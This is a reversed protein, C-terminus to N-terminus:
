GGSPKQAAVPNQYRRRMLRVLFGAGLSAFAALALWLYWYSGKKEWVVGPPEPLGFASLTFEQAPIDRIRLETFAVDWTQPGEKDLVHSPLFIGDQVERYGVICSSKEDGELDLECEELAWNREPNLFMWGGRMQTLHADFRIPVGNPGLEPTVKPPNYKFKVKALKKGGRVVEDVEILKFGPERIMEAIPVAGVTFPANLFRLFGMALARTYPHDMRLRDGPPGTETVTWSSPPNNQELGFKYKLNVGHALLRVIKGDADKRTEESVLYEGNVKFKAQHAMPAQEALIHRGIYSGELKQMATRLGEWGQPGERLFRARLPEQAALSAPASANAVAFWICIAFCILRTM